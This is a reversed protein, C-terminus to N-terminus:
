NNPNDTIIVPKHHNAVRGESETTPSRARPQPTVDKIDGDDEDDFVVTTTNLAENTIESQSGDDFDVTQIAEQINWM